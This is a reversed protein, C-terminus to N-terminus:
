NLSKGRIQREKHMYTSKLKYEMSKVFHPLCHSYLKKVDKVGLYILYQNRQKRLKPNFNYKIIFVNIIFVCEQLTFSQTNLYIGGSSTQGDGMIWHALGRYTLLDFLDSPVRKKGKNYFKRYLVLFCPLSRTYFEIQVFKKNKLTEIKLKPVATCYHQFFSYVLWFYEFHKISQKFRFRAGKKLPYEIKNFKSANYIQINGDSLLIGVLLDILHYPINVMYRVITTYMPYGVTSSINTGYLVLAKNASGSEQIYNPNSRPFSDLLSSTIKFISHLDIYPSSSM